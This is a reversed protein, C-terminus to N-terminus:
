KKRRTTEELGLQKQLYAKLESSVKGSEKAQKFVSELMAVDDFYEVRIEKIKQEDLEAQFRTIIWNAVDTQHVRGGIFSDNVKDTIARLAAWSDSSIVIRQVKAGVIQNGSVEQEETRKGIGLEMNNDKDM